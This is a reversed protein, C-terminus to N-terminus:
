SVMGNGDGLDSPGHLHYKGSRFLADLEKNSSILGNQCAFVVPDHHNLLRPYTTLARAAEHEEEFEETTPKRCAFM